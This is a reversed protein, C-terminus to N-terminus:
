QLLINGSEDTAFMLPVEQKLGRFYKLEEMLADHEKVMDEQSSFLERSGVDIATILEDINGYYLAAALPYNDNHRRHLYTAIKLVDYYDAELATEFADEIGPSYETTRYYKWWLYILEKIEKEDM